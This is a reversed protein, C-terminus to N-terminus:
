IAVGSASLVVVVTCEDDVDLLIPACLAEGGPTFVKRLQSRVEFTELNRVACETLRQGELRPIDELPHSCRPRLILNQMKRDASEPRSADSGSCHLPM